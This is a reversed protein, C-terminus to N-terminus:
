VPKRIRMARVGGTTADVALSKYERRYKKGQMVKMADTLANFVDYEASDPVVERLFSLTIRWENDGDLFEVEELRIDRISEKRGVVAQVFSFAADVAASVDIESSATETNETSM